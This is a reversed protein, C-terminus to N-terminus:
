LVYDGFYVEHKSYLIRVETKETSAQGELPERQLFNDFGPGM